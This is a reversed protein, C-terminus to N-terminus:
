KIEIGFFRLGSRSNLNMIPYDDPKYWAILESACSYGFRKIQEVANAVSESTIRENNLLNNWVKLIQQIPNNNPIMVKNLAVSQISHLCSLVKIIDNRKLSMIRDPALLTQICKLREVRDNYSDLDFPM